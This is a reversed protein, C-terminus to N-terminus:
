AVERMCLGQVLGRITGQLMLFEEYISTWQRRRLAAAMAWSHNFLWRSLIRLAYADCRRLWISCFVGIGRGYSSRSAIRRAKSQREHYVLADPEYRVRAGASTLRYFIDM